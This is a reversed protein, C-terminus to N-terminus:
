IPFVCRGPIECIEFRYLVFFVRYLVTFDLVLLGAVVLLAFSINLATFRRKLIKKIFVFPGIASTLLLLPIGIWFIFHGFLDVLWGPIM